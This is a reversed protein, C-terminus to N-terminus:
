GNPEGLRLTETKPEVQLRSIHNSSQVKVINVLFRFEEEFKM